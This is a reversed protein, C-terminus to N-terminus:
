DLRRADEFADSVSRLMLSESDICVSIEKSVLIKQCEVVARIMYDSFAIV